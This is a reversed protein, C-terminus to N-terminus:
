RCYRSTCIVAGCWRPWRTGQDPGREGGHVLYKRLVRALKHPFEEVERFAARLLLQFAVPAELGVLEGGHKAVRAAEFQEGGDHAIRFRAPPNQTRREHLHPLCLPQLGFGAGFDAVCDPAGKIGVGIEGGGDRPGIKKRVRVEMARM